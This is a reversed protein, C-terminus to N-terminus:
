AKCCLVENRLFLMQPNTMFPMPTLQTVSSCFYVYSYINCMKNMSFSLLYFSFNSLLIICPDGAHEWIFTFFSFFSTVNIIWPVLKAPERTEIMCSSGCM